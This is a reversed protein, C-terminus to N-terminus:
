PVVRRGLAAQSLDLWTVRAGDRQLKTPFNIKPKAAEACLHADGSVKSASWSSPSCNKCGHWIISTALCHEPVFM